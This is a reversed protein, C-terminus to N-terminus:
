ECAEDDTWAEAQEDANPLRSFAGRRNYDALMVDLLDLSNVRVPGDITALFKAVAERAQQGLVSVRKFRRHQKQEPRPPREKPQPEAALRERIVRQLLSSPM